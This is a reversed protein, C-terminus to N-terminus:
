VEETVLRKPRDEVIRRRRLGIVTDGAKLQSIPSALRRGTRRGAVLPLFDDTLWLPEDGIRLDEDIHFSVEQAAGAMIAVDWSATEPMPLIEVELDDLLHGLGEVHGTPLVVSVEPVGLERAMRAALLNVEPNSTAAIFLATADIDANRLVLDDLVNGHIAHLGEQTAEAVNARNSDVLLVPGVPRMLRAVVRAIPHAGAVVIQRRTGTRELENRGELWAVGRTLLVPVTATTAIAMVVLVSFVTVDILGAQLALEAVIIEVAGRGNMGVGIVTGERWGNGSASYLAATGVIKGFTALVVVGGLLLPDTRFVGLSVEYGASVFFLPALTGVSVTQLRRRVERSLRAGLTRESAILGFVFAGLIAHFGALEALWGFLIGGLVLVIYVLSSDPKQPMRAAIRPAVFRAILMSALAFATAGLGTNVAYTWLPQDSGASGVVMSFAVLVMVDSILAGAMLVYAIRTDLIKLDILLRSKTALSTVGMALGTFVAELVTRQMALLFGFGALAPVAFGGLAALMGSGSVARLKVPDIHMGILMMMLLVGFEGLLKVPESPQLLGLLPPGLAIGGLLEGLVAPYGFRTALRGGGIAALLTALLMMLEHGHM